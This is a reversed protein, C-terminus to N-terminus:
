LISPGVRPAQFTAGHSPGGLFPGSNPQAAKVGIVGRGGEKSLSAGALTGGGCKASNSSTLLMITHFTQGPLRARTHPQSEGTHTGQLLPARAPNLGEKPSLGDKALRGGQTSHGERLGKSPSPIVTASSPLPRTQTPWAPLAESILPDNLPAPSSM